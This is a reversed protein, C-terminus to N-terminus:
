FLRISIAYVAYYVRLRFLTVEGVVPIAEDYHIDTFQKRFVANRTTEKIAGVSDRYLNDNEGGSFRQSLAMM